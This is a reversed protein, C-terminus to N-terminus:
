FGRCPGEVTTSVPESTETADLLWKGAVDELRSVYSTLGAGGGLSPPAPRGTSRFHSGPDYSCGTVVAGEGVLSVVRVGGIRWASPGVVGSVVQASIFAREQALALGGPVLTADLRSLNTSGLESALYFDNISAVWAGEVRADAGSGAPRAPVPTTSAPAPAPSSVTPAAAPTAGISTTGASAVEAPRSAGCGALSSTAALLALAAFPRPRTGPGACLHRSM